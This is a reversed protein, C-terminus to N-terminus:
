FLPKREELEEYINLFLDKFALGDMNKSLYRLLLWDPYNCRKIVMQLHWPYLKGRATHGFIIQNFGVSRSYLFMSLVRWVVILCSAGFLIMFWFWLFLYIKENIINLAMICLADHVQISGSPGYKHFTCKTVKPFVEDLVKSGNQVVDRGLTSFLNGLFKNTVYFQFGVHVVNLVEFFMFWWAWSKNLRIRQLFEERIRQICAKKNEKTPISHNDINVEKDLLAFRSNALGTVLKHIRNNEMKKWFLHTLYFMIAQGFLLFPVWQYYMHKRIPQKSGIGYPLIGRHGNFGYRFFDMETDDVVTFTTTFFCFTEIVKEFGPSSMDTICKIHEGIYERSTVLITAIFFIICTARYHLKFVWNDICISGFKPKLQDKIVDFLGLM